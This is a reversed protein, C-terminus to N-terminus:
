WDQVFMTSNGDFTSRLNGFKNELASVMRKRLPDHVRRDDSTFYMFLKPKMDDFIMLETSFGVKISGNITMNGSGHYSNGETRVDSVRVGISKAAEMVKVFVDQAGATPDLEKIKKAIESKQSYNADWKHNKFIALAKDKNKPLGGWGNQHARALEYACDNFFDFCGQLYKVGLAEDRAFGWQGFLFGRGANSEAAHIGADAGKKWYEAGLKENQVVGRGHFHLSGVFFSGWPIGKEDLALALPMLETYKKKDMLESLAARQQEAQMALLEALTPVPKLEYELAAIKPKLEGQMSPANISKYYALAKTKDQALAADGKEYLQALGYASEWFEKASAELYPIGKAVNKLSTDKTSTLLIGVHMQARKFGADASQLLLSMGKPKDEAVGQGFVYAQGLYYQAVPSGSPALANALELLNIYDNTTQLSQLTTEQQQPSQALFVNVSPIALLQAELKKIKDQWRNPDAWKHNKYVALAKARDKPIGRLGDEYLSALLEAAEDFKEAGAVLYQMAVAPELKVDKDSAFLTGLVSKARIDGAQAAQKILDLGKDKDQAVGEGLLTCVGVFYTGVASNKAHLANALRVVIEYDKAEYLKNLTQDQQEPTQALVTEESPGTNLAKGVGKVLEAGKNVLDDFFGAHAPLVSTALVVSVAAGRWRKAFNSRM